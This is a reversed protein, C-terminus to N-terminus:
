RALMAIAFLLLAVAQLLVRWRMMSNSKASDRQVFAILGWVLSGLTMLAAIGVLIGIFM